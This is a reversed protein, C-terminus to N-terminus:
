QLFDPVKQWQDKKWPFMAAPLEVNRNIYSHFHVTCNEEECMIIGFQAPGEYCAQQGTMGPLFPAVSHQNGSITVVPFGGWSGATTIHCHGAMILPIRAGSEKLVSLLMDPEALSYRDVPMFLKQPNHHIILVVQQNKAKAASLQESLWSLRKPCLIGEVHGPESSDLMVIRTDGLDHAGQVFGDVDLMPAKCNDLYVQRDDHNGLLVYQPMSLRTRMDEFLQYAAPNAEDAIDGAFVCLDADGYLKNIDDLARAFRVATDLGFKVTGSPGLHIDSLVIIKKM